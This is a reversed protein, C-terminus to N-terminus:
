MEDDVQCDKWMKWAAILMGKICTDVPITDLCDTGNVMAVHIVGVASGMLIAM